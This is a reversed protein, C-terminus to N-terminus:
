KLSDELTLISRKAIRLFPGSRANKKYLNICFRQLVAREEEISQKDAALPLISQLPSSIKINGMHKGLKLAANGVFLPLIDWLLGLRTYYKLQPLKHQTTKRVAFYTISSTRQISTFHFVYRQITSQKERHREEQKLMMAVDQRCPLMPGTATTTTCHRLM